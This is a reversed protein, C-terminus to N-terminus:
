YIAKIEDLVRFTDLPTRKNRAKFHAHMDNFQENGWNKEVNCGTEMKYSRKLLKFGAPYKTKLEKITM